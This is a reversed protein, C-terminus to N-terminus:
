RDQASSESTYQLALQYRRQKALLFIGDVYIGGRLYHLKFRIAPYGAFQATKKDLLEVGNAQVLRDFEANLTKDPELKESRPPLDAYSVLFRLKPLSVGFTSESVRGTGYPVDKVDEKAFGDPASVRFRGDASTFERWQAVPVQATRARGVSTTISRSDRWSACCRGPSDCCSAFPRGGM